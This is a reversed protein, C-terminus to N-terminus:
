RNIVDTLADTGLHRRSINNRAKVTSSATGGRHLREHVNIADIPGRIFVPYLESPVVGGRPTYASSIEPRAIRVRDPTATAKRCLKAGERQM